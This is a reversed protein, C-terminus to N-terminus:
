QADGIQDSPALRPKGAAKRAPLGPPLEGPAATGVEDSPPEQVSTQRIWAASSTLVEDLVDPALFHMSAVFVAGLLAGILVGVFGKATWSKIREVLRKRGLHLAAFTEFQTRAAPHTHLAEVVLGIQRPSWERLVPFAIREKFGGAVSGPQQSWVRWFFAMEAPPAQSQRIRRDALQGYAALITQRDTANDIRSLLRAHAGADRETAIREGILRPISGAIEPHLDSRLELLPAIAEPDRDRRLRVALQFANLVAQRHPAGRAHPGLARALSERPADTHRLDAGAQLSEFLQDILRASDMRLPGMASLIELGEDVAPPRMQWLAEVMNDVHDSTLAVGARSLDAICSRFAPLRRDARGGVWAAKLRVFLAFAGQSLAHELLTTLLREDSFYALPSFAEPDMVRTTLYAAVGAVVEAAHEGAVLRSLVNRVAPDALGPGLVFEGLLKLAAPDDPLYGLLEGLRLQLARAEPTGQQRLQQLWQRKFARAFDLAAPSLSLGELVPLLLAPSRTTSCQRVLWEVLNKELASRAAPPTSRYLSLLASIYEVREPGSSALAEFVTTLETSTLRSAHRACWRGASLRDAWPANLGALLAYAGFAAELDELALDPATRDTFRVFGAVADARDSQYAEAISAAVPSIQEVPSFRGNVFDFVSYQTRMEQQSFQFDSDPTVGILLAESRYPDKVYTTFTLSLGISRPLAYSAAAIWHAVDESGDPPAVVLVRRRSRLAELTASLFAALHESRGPQRVFDTVRQPDIPGTAPRSLAPLETTPSEAAQWIPSEWLEIPLLDGLESASKAVLSHTFYNGFRGSYDAGLYKARAIVLARDPLRHFSFAIPFRAMQEPTPRSPASVPAVYLGLREVQQLTADDVGPTAAHIQFGRTNRLGTQSSTYFVQAFSM